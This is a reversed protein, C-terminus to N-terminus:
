IPHTADDGTEVYGPRDPETLHLFWEQHSRTHSSAFWVDEANSTITPRSALKSNARHRMVFMGGRDEYDSNTAYNTLQWSTSASKHKQKRCDEEYHGLKGCYGCKTANQRSPGSHFSGRRGFTGRHSGDQPRFQSYNEYTPGRGGQGQGFRGRAQGRGRGGNSHTYLMHGESGNNRTRVHNEEVLLMSQVEFFFPSTERALISTRMAGLRPALGGLCIQVVEDDDVNISISGLSDCLEKIKLTSATISM